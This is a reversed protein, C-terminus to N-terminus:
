RCLITKGGGLVRCPANTEGCQGTTALPTDIVFTGKLPLNAQNVAVSANKGRISFRLTGPASAKEVIRVKM